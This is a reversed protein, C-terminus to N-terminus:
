PSAVGTSCTTFWKKPSLLHTVTRTHNINDINERIAPCLHHEIGHVYVRILHPAEESGSRTSTFHIACQM